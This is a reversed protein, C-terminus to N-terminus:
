LNRCKEKEFHVRFFLECFCKEHGALECSVYDGPSRLADARGICYWDKRFIHELEADVFEQSTYVETPMARAQEFPVATNERLASIPDISDKPM